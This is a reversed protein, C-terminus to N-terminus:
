TNKGSCVILNGGSVMELEFDSLEGSDDNAFSDMIEQASFTLGHDAGMKVLTEPSWDDNAFLERIRGQLDPNQDALQRFKELDSSGTSQEQTNM